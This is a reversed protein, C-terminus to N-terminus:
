WSPCNWRLVNLHYKYKKCSPLLYHSCTFCLSLLYPLSLSFSCSSHRTSFPVVNIVLPPFVSILQGQINALRVREDKQFLHVPSLASWKSTIFTLHHFNSQQHICCLFSSEIATLNQIRSKLSEGHEIHEINEEPYNDPTQIEYGSAESCEAQEMKM